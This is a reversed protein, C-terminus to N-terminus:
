LDRAAPLANVLFFTGRTGPHKVQVRFVVRGNIVFRLRGQYVRRNRGKGTRRMKARIIHPQTGDHEYGLYDTQGRRGAVVDVYSRAPNRNKRISSHLTGTRKRVLARARLQVLSMRADLDRMVPGDPERPFATVAVRDVRVKVSALRIM